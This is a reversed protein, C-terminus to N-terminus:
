PQLTGGAATRTGSRPRIAAATKTGSRPRIEAAAPDYDPLQTPNGGGTGDPDPYLDTAQSKKKPDPEPEPEPPQPAPAPPKAIDPAPAPPKGLSGIVEAVFGVYILAAGVEIIQAGGTALAGGLPAGAGVTSVSVAAGSLMVAGGLAMAGLGFAQLSKGAKEVTHWTAWDAAGGAGLGAGHGYPGGSGGLNSLDPGSHAGPAGYGFLDGTGPDGSNRNPGGSNRNPSGNRNQNPIDVGFGYQGLSKWDLWQDLDTAALAGPAFITFTRTNADLVPIASEAAFESKGVYKSTVTLIRALAVPEIWPWAANVAACLVPEIGDVNGRRRVYTLVENLFTLRTRPSAGVLVASAFGCTRLWVSRADEGGVRNALSSLVRAKPNGIRTALEQILALGVSVPVVALSANGRYVPGTATVAVLRGAVPRRDRHKREREKGSKHQSGGRASDNPTGLQEKM